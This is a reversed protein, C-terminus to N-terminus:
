HRKKVKVWVDNTGDIQHKEVEYNEKTLISIKKKALEQEKQLKDSLLKATGSMNKPLPMDLNRVYYLIEGETSLYENLAEILFKFSVNDTASPMNGLYIRDYLDSLQLRKIDANLYKISQMNAINSSAKNYNESNALHVLNSNSSAGFLNIQNKEDNRKYEIYKKWFNFSAYSEEGEFLEEMKNISLYDPSESNYLFNFYEEFSLKQIALLKLAILYYQYRHIDFLTINDVGYLSSEILFNGTEGLALVKKDEFNGGQLVDGVKDPNNVYIHPDNIYFDLANNTRFKVLKDEQLNTLTIIDKEEQAEKYGNATLNTYRKEAGNLDCGQPIKDCFFLFAFRKKLQHLLM